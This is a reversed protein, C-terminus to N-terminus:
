LEKLDEGVKAKLQEGMKQGVHLEVAWPDIEDDVVVRLSSKAIATAQAKHGKGMSKQVASMREFLSKPM